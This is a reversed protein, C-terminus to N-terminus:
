KIGPCNLLSHYVTTERAFTLVSRRPRDTTDSNSVPTARGGNAGSIKNPSSSKYQTKDRM